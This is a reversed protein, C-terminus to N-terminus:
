EQGPRPNPNIAQGDIPQGWPDDGLADVCYGSGEVHGGAGRCTDSTVDRLGTAATPVAAAVAAGAATSLLVVSATTAAVRALRSRNMRVVGARGGAGQSWLAGARTAM